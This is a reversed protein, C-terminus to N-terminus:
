RELAKEYTIAQEISTVYANRYGEAEGRTLKGGKDRDRMRTLTTSATQISNYSPPVELPRLDEPQTGTSPVIGFIQEIQTRPYPRAKIQIALAEFKGIVTDYADARSAYGGPLSGSEVKAFLILAQENADTIGDIISRDYDPALKIACATLVVAAIVIPLFRTCFLTGTVVRSKRTPRM